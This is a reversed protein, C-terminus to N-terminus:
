ARAVDSGLTIMRFLGWAIASVGYRGMDEVDRICIASCIGDYGGHTNSPHRRGTAVVVVTGM